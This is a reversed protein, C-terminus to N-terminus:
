LTGDVAVIELNAFNISLGGGFIQGATVVYTDDEETGVVFLKDVGTGGDIDVLSNVVYDPDDTINNPKKGTTADDRGGAAISFDDIGDEGRATVKKSDSGLIDGTCEDVVLAIFSRVVFIDDGSNGNLDLIQKNRLVEFYDGGGLGNLFLPHSNGNSLYGKTTLTTQIPDSARVYHLKDRSSNYLQGVRFEELM